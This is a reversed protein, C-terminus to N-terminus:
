AAPRSAVDALLQLVTRTSMGTAGKGMYGLPSSAYGPGAIDLHAWETDGM